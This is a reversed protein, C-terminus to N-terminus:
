SFFRDFRPLVCDTVFGYLQNMLGAVEMGQTIGENFTVFFNAEGEVQMEEGERAPIPGVALEAGPYRPTLTSQVSHGTESSLFTTRSYHAALVTVLIRRHKNINCLQDLVRVTARDIQGANYPQLREIESVADPTVGDLRHRRRQEEFAEAKDCIPFM